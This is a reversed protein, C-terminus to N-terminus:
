PSAKQKYKCINCIAGEMNAISDQKISNDKALTTCATTEAIIYSIQLIGGGAQLDSFVQERILQLM